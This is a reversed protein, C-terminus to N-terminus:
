RQTGKLRTDRWYNKMKYPTEYTMERGFWEPARFREAAQITPFEVEAYSFGGERGPDVVSFELVYEGLSYNTYDKIIPPCDLMGTLIGYEEWTLEKIIEERALTGESKITLDYRYEGPRSLDEYRRVRVEPSLSLYSQEVRLHCREPLEPAQEMKWKREIEM